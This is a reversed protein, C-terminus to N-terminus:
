EKSPEEYHGMIFPKDFYDSLCENYYYEESKTQTALDYPLITNPTHNIIPVVCTEEACKRLLTYREEMEIDYKMATGTLLDKYVTRVNNTTLFILALGLFCASLRFQISFLIKQFITNKLFLLIASALTFIGFIYLLFIVNVTRDPPPGGQTWLSPFYCLFIFCLLFCGLLFIHLFSFNKLSFRQRLNQGIRTLLPAWLLILILTMPAWRLIAYLAYKISFSISFWPKFKDPKVLMRETNGPSFISFASAVITIVVLSILFPNVRRNKYTDILFWLVLIVNLIILSTENLGAVAICLVGALLTYLIKTIITNGDKLHLIFTLLFLTLIAALQYTISGPM